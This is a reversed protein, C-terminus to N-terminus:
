IARGGNCRVSQLALFAKEGRLEQRKETDRLADREEGMEPCPGTETLERNRCCLRACLSCGIFM